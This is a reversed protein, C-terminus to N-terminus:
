TQKRSEVPGGAAKRGGAETRAPEAKRTESASGVRRARFWEDVEPAIFYVRGCPKYHPLGRTMRWLDITRVSVGLRDAVEKRGLYQANVTETEASISQTAKMNLQWSRDGARRLAAPFQHNTPGQDNTTAPGGREQGQPSLCEARDLNARPGAHMYGFQWM